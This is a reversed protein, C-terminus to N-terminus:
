FFDIFKIGIFNVQNSNQLIFGGGLRRETNLQSSDLYEQNNIPYDPTGDTNKRNNKQNLSSNLSRGKNKEFTPSKNVVQFSLIEETFTGEEKTNTAADNKQHNRTSSELNKHYEKKSPTINENVSPNQLSARKFNFRNKKYKEEEKKPKKVGKPVTEISLPIKNRAFGIPKFINPPSEDKENESESNNWFKKMEIELEKMM